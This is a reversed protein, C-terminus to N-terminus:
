ARPPITPATSSSSAPTSPQALALEGGLLLSGVGVIVGLAATGTITGVVALACVAGIIALGLILRYLASTLITM